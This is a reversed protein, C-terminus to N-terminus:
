DAARNGALRRYKEDKKVHSQEKRAEHVYGSDHLARNGELRLLRLPKSKYPGGPVPLVSIALATAVSHEMLKKLM